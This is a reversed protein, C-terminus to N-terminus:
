QQFKLNLHINLKASFYEQTEGEPIRTKQASQTHVYM